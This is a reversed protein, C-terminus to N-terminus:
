TMSLNSRDDVVYGSPVPLNEKNEIISIKNIGQPTQAPLSLKPPGPRVRDLPKARGAVSQAVGAGSAAGPIKAIRAQTQPTKGTDRMKSQLPTKLNVKGLGNASEEIM